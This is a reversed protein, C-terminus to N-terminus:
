QLFHLRTVQSSRISSNSMHLSDRDANDHVLTILFDIWTPRTNPFTAHSVQEQSHPTRNANRSMAMETMATLQKWQKQKWFAFDFLGPEQTKSPAGGYAKYENIQWRPFPCNSWYLCHKMLDTVFNPLSVVPKLNALGHMMTCNLYIALRVCCNKLRNDQRKNVVWRTKPTRGGMM